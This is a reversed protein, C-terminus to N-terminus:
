CAAEPTLAAPTRGDLWMRGNDPVASGAPSGGGPTASLPPPPRDKLPHNDNRSGCPAPWRCAQPPPKGGGTVPLTQTDRGRGGGTRTLYEPCGLRTLPRRRSPPGGGAGWRGVPPVWGGARGGPSLRDRSEVGAACGGWGWRRPAPAGACRASTVARAGDRDSPCVGPDRTLEEATHPPPAAGVPVAAPRSGSARRERASGRAAAAAAVGGGSGGGGGFSEGM